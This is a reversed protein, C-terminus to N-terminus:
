AGRSTLKDHAYDLLALMAPHQLRRAVTIAYFRVKVSDIQGIVQVRYQRTVEKKMASAAPFLGGGAQGFAMLTAMDDFEGVIRPRIKQEIFWDDLSRRMASGSTPLLFPAGNLSRPFQRRYLRATRGTGFLSVPSEGLLHSYAQVKVIPPVPTDALILDLNYIALDALLQELRGERCIIHVPQPLSLASKLLWFAVAKPIVEALGVVFRLARHSDQGHLIHLLEQGLAFIRQAYGYVVRGTETLVLNRGARAFLQAGLARELQRIQGSITPQALGVQECARRISGERATIWFYFLHHYNLWEM